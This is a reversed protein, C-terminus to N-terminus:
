QKLGYFNVKGDVVNAMYRGRDLFQMVKKGAGALETWRSGTNPNQELGRLMQNEFRFDVERLKSRSTRRVPYRGSELAVAKVDEVLVALEPSLLGSDAAEHALRRVAALQQNITNAALGRSELYM